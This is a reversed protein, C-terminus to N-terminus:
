KEMGKTAAIEPRKKWLWKRSGWKAGKKRWYAVHCKKCLRCNPVGAYIHINSKTLRHGRWCFGRSTKSFVIYLPKGKRFRKYIVKLPMGIREAWEALPRTEGKYTVHHIGRKNRAQQTQTAWRCNSPEYHGDNNIRDISHKPSPRKGMDKYFNKFNDWRKCVKIGRGGYNRFGPNAKNLCRTRM